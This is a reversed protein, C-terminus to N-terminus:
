PGITEWLTMEKRVATELNTIANKPIIKCRVNAQSTFYM